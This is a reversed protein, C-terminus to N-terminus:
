LSRPVAMKIGGTGDILAVINGGFSFLALRYRASQQKQRLGFTPAEKQSFVSSAYLNVLYGNPRCTRLRQSSIV